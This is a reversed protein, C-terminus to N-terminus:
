KIDKIICLRTKNVETRFGDPFDSDPIYAYSIMWVEGVGMDNSDFCVLWKGDSTHILDKKDFELKKTGNVLVIKFDDDDMSFEEATIKVKFKLETGIYIM